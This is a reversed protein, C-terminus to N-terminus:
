DENRNCDNLFDARTAEDSDFYDPHEEAYEVIKQELGWSLVEETVDYEDDLLVSEVEGTGYEDFNVRCTLHVSDELISYDFESTGNILEM